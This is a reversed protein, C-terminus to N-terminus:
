RCTCHVAGQMPLDSQERSFNWSATGQMQWFVLPPLCCSAGLAPGASLEGPAFSAPLLNEPIHLCLWDLAAALGAAAGLADAASGADDESFGLQVLSAM